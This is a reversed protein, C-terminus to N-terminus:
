SGQKAPAVPAQGAAPVPAVAAGDFMMPKAQGATIVEDGAHLGNVIEVQGPVRRGTTVATKKAKGAVVTYVFRSDGEQMLAQEPVLLATAAADGTVLQLRALQGPKLKFAPNPIQARLKVSRSNSDIVPDIALVQGTFQEGPFADVQLTLKQGNSLQALMTEPVSFDVEIPDLQVLTVLDQGVNVFEGVSVSRLGIQGAFPANLSMKVLAARASALRAQDVGLQAVAKDSDSQSILKQAVLDKARAVARQSNVLNAAAENVSARAESDDLSFLTQGASVHSGEIFRINVIRGAVEPRVVVSEDARLSGVAEFGASLPKAEVKATEVAMPPMGSGPPGGAEGGPAAGKCASLLVVSALLPVSLRRM